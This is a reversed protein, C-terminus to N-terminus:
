MIRDVGTIEFRAGGDRGEMAKISWGHAEVGGRVITLGFGTGDDGTTYGYEFIREREGPPIGDGDDEVYFGEFSDDGLLGVTVTVSPDTRDVTDDSETRSSTSSHEVSNRLLNEIITRTM